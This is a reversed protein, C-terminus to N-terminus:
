RGSREDGAALQALVTAVEADDLPSAPFHDRQACATAVADLEQVFRAAPAAVTARRHVNRSYTWTFSLRGAVVSGDVEILHRRRGNPDRMPGPAEHAARVPGADDATSRGFQGLYNFSLQRAPAAGLLERVSGSTSLHRL